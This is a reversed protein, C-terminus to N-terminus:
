DRRGDPLIIKVILLAFLLLFALTCVRGTIDGYKVFFTEESNLNVRGEIHCPTWWESRELIDGKQDIFCSIGTNGCRAIDRRLEIARLSSYSCHQRYGPTDGWWADNTIVTLFEAGKRVYAACYEPYVSEYCVACGLTKDGAFKLVSPEEPGINRGMLPGRLGFTRCLFADLGTFFKPFPTKEVGVVLKGKHCIQPRGSRAQLVASNHSEYWGGRASEVALISPASRQDYYDVTSAGYLMEAGYHSGIYEKFTNFTPSTEVSGLVIDSTFTEPALLLVSSSDPRRSLAEDFLSLLRANQESQPLYEFKQYPDFNPQAIVVDVTGESKESFDRYTIESFVIPGAILATIGLVTFIHGFINWRACKGDALAVIIGYISLNVAWVWFSGGVTGTYEYWQVLSTTRAFANGLVLWPWSIQGSTLFYREWAIWMVALFIYPVVGGLRKKSFRFIGFLVAMMAANAVCAAIGGGVTACCVWFTTAANWLLFAVYAYAGFHKVRLQSAFDEAMLLPIFGILVLAGTHPVLWPLSMLVVFLLVLIWLLLKNKM